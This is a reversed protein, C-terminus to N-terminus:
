IAAGNQVLLDLLEPSIRGTVKYNYYVEFNRIAKATAEGAVGDAPGHLFGLSGLGRQVKAVIVPDTVSFPPMIEEPTADTDLVAVDDSSKAVPEEPIALPVGPQPNDVSATKIPAAAPKPTAEAAVYQQQQSATRTPPSTMAIAQVGDAITEIAEGATEMVLELAAEPSQPIERRPRQTAPVSEAVPQKTATFELPGPTTLPTPETAATSLEAAPRVPAEAELAPEATATPAPAIAQPAVVPVAERPTAAPLPDPTPLPEVKPEPLIVPAARVAELLEHTLEGRPRMGMRDEFVKIARATVPGYLGDVKGEFIQMSHLKRQIEAVEANGIPEVQATPNVSGTTQEDPLPPVVSTPRDERSAPIVPLVEIRRSPAAEGVPAFLPAPHEHRQMYLANSAALATLTVMALIATNTLPARMYRAVGWHIANGTVSLVAGGAALPLHTLSAATM